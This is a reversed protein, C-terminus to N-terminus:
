KASPRRVAELLGMYIDKPIRPNGAQKKLLRYLRDYQKKTPNEDRIVDEVAQGMEPSIRYAAYILMQQHVTM